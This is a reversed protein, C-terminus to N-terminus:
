VPQSRNSAAYGADESEQKVLSEACEPCMTMGTNPNISDATQAKDKTVVRRCLECKM